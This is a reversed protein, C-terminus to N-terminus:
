DNGHLRDYATQELENMKFNFINECSDYLELAEMINDQLCIESANALDQADRDTVLCDFEFHLRKM